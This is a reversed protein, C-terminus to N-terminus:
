INTVQPARSPDTTGGSTVKVQVQAFSNSGCNGVPQDDHISTPQPLIVLTNNLLLAFTAQSNVALHIIKLLKITSRACNAPRCLCMAVYYIANSTFWTYMTHVM